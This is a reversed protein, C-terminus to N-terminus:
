GLDILGPHGTKGLTKERQRVEIVDLQHATVHSAPRERDGDGDLPNYWFLAGQATRTGLRPIGDKDGTRQPIRRQRQLLPQGVLRHARVVQQVPQLLGLWPDQGAHRQAEGEPRPAEARQEVPVVRIEGDRGLGAVVQGQRELRGAQSDASDGTEAGPIAVGQAEAEALFFHYDLFDTMALPHILLTTDLQEAETAALLALEQELEALLEDATAAATLAYRVQKKVFVSKAFPCLNLGIVARELWQRTASLIPEAGTAAYPFLLDNM